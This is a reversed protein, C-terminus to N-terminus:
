RKKCYFRFHLCQIVGGSLTSWLECKGKKGEIFGEINNTSGIHLDAKEVNETINFVDNVLKTYKREYEKQLMMEVCEEYSFKKYLFKEVHSWREHFKDYEVDMVCSVFANGTYKIYRDCRYLSQTHIDKWGKGEEYPVKREELVKKMEEEGKHYRIDSLKEHEVKYEEKAKNYNVLQEKYWNFCETKWNDLFQEVIEFGEIKEM